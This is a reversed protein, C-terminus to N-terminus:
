RGAATEFDLFRLWSVNSTCVTWAYTVVTLNIMSFYVVEHCRSSSHYAKCILNKFCDHYGHVPIETVHGVDNNELKGLNV